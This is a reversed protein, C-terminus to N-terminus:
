VHIHPPQAHVRGRVPRRDGDGPHDREAEARQRRRVIHQQQGQHELEHEQQHLRAAVLREIEPPAAEAHQVARKDYGCEVLRPRLLRTRLLQLLQRPVEPAFDRVQREHM